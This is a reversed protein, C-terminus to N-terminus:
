LSRMSSYGGKKAGSFVRHSTKPLRAQKQRNERDDDLRLADAAGVRGIPRRGPPSVLLEDGLEGLIPLAEADVRVEARDIM